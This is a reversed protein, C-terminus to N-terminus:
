LSPSFTPLLDSSPWAVPFGVSVPAQSTPTPGGPPLAWPRGLGPGPGKAPHGNESRGCQETIEELPLLLGPPRPPGPIARSPTFPASHLRWQPLAGEEMGMVLQGEPQGPVAHSFTKSTSPVTQVRARTHTYTDTQTHGRARAKMQTQSGLKSKTM